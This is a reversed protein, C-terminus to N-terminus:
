TGDSKINLGIGTCSGDGTAPGRILGNMHMTEWTTAETLGNGALNLVKITYNALMIAGQSGQMLLVDSSDQSGILNMGELQFYGGMGAPNTLSFEGVMSLLASAEGPIHFIATGQRQ